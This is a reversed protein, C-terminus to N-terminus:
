REDIPVYKADHSGVFIQGPRYLRNNQMQERYHAAYGAIRALAFIPTFVDTPIGLKSYVIGSFFDVNPYIGKDGLRDVVEKELALATDILPTSGQKAFLERTLGELMTARPDKTKYVRHGFGMIKSKSQLSDELWPVVNDVGGIAELQKLVRENAGGHLPGTLAGVGASCATYPDNETAAVVRMAFTSANMTHDAHLILAVDLIHASQANPREGDLMYLFNEATTLSLDPELYDQGRRFREFTAILTGTVGIAHLLAEDRAEADNIVDFRPRVMANAALSVQLADMPHGDTPLARILELIKPSLKRYQALKARFDTLQTATPLEGYLLLYVVEEYNSKEALVEIRHGRYELIGAQGDIFSIASEAAPIGALGPVFDKQEVPM